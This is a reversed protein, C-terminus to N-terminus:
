FSVTTICYLTKWEPRSREAVWLTVDVRFCSKINTVRAGEVGIRAFMVVGSQSASSALALWLTQTSALIDM